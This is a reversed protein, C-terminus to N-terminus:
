LLEDWSDKAPAKPPEPKRDADVPPRGPDGPQWGIAGRLLRKEKRKEQRDKCRQEAKILMEAIVNLSEQQRPSKWYARADILRKAVFRLTSVGAIRISLVTNATVCWDEFSTKPVPGAMATPAFSLDRRMKALAVQKLNKM